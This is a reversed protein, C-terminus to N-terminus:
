QLDPSLVLATKKLLISRNLVIFTTVSHEKSEPKEAIDENRLLYARRKQALNKHLEQMSFCSPHMSGVAYTLKIVEEM